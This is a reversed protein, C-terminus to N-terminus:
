NTMCLMKIGKSLSEDNKVYEEYQCGVNISVYRGSIMCITIISEASMEYKGVYYTKFPKKNTKKPSQCLFSSLCAV